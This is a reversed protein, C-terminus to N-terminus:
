IFPLQKRLLPGFPQVADAASAVMLRRAAGRQERIRQLGPDRMKVAPNAYFRYPFEVDRGGWKRKFLHM